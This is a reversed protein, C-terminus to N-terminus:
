SVAIGPLLLDDCGIQLGRRRTSSSAQCDIISAGGTWDQARITLPKDVDIDRNGAGTFSGDALVIVDGEAAGDAAAQITPFDGSGDPRVVYTTASATPAIGILVTVAPWYAARM